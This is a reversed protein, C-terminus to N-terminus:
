GIGWIVSAKVCPLRFSMSGGSIWFWPFMTVKKQARSHLSLRRFGLHQEKVGTLWLLHGVRSIGEAPAIGLVGAELPKTPGLLPAAHSSSGSSQGEGAWEVGVVELLGAREFTLGGPRPPAKVISHAWFPILLYLWLHKLPCGPSEEEPLLQLPHRNLVAKIEPWAFYVDKHITSLSLESKYEINGLLQSELLLHSLKTRYHALLTFTTIVIGQSEQKINISM